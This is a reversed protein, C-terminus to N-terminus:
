DRQSLAFPLADRPRDAPSAGAPPKVPVIYMHVIAAARDTCADDILDVAFGVSDRLLKYKSVVGTCPGAVDTWQLTDGSMRGVSVLFVAGSPDLVRLSDQVVQIRWLDFQPDFSATRPLLSYTGTTFTKAPQASAAMMPVLCGALLLRVFM